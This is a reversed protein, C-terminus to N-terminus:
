GGAAELKDLLRMLNQKADEAMYADDQLLREGGDRSNQWTELLGIVRELRRIAAKTPPRNM